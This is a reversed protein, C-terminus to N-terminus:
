ALCLPELTETVFFFAALSLLASETPLGLPRVAFGYLVLTVVCLLAGSAWGALVNSRRMRWAIAFGVLQVVVAVGASTAIARHDAPTTFFLGAFWSLGAVVGLVIGVYWMAKTM